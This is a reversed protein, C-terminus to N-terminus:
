QEREREGLRRADLEAADATHPPDINHRETDRPLGCLCLRPDGPRAPVGDPSWDAQYRHRNRPCSM